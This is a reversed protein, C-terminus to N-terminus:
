LQKLPKRVSDSPRNWHDPQYVAPLCPPIQYYHAEHNSAGFTPHAIGGM